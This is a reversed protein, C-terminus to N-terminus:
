LIPANVAQLSVMIQQTEKKQDILDSETVMIADANDM